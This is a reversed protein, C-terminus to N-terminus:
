LELGMKQMVAQIRPHSRLTEIEPWPWNLFFPIMLEQMEFAKEIHIIAKEPEGLAVSTWAFFIHTVPQRASLQELEEVLQLAKARKGWRGYLRAIENLLVPHRGFIKTFSVNKLIM